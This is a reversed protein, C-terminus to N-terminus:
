AMLVKSSAVFAREGNLRLQLLVRVLARKSATTPMARAVDRAADVSGQSSDPCLLVGDEFV